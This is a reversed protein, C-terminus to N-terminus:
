GGGPSAYPGLLITSGWGPRVFLTATRVLEGTGVRNASVTAAGGPVNVFGGVGDTTTAELAITPFNNAFYFRVAQGQNAMSFEVNETLRGSCNLSFIGIYGATPDIDIGNVDALGVLASPQVLTRPVPEEFITSTNATLTSAFFALLPVTVDSTVEVYGAFGHFLPLEIIGNSDATVFSTLPASCVPDAIGCARVRLNPPAERTGLDLYSARYTLPRNRDVPVTPSPPSEEALCAWEDEGLSAAVATEPAALEDAGDAFETCGPAAGLVLVRAVHAWPGRRLGMVAINREFTVVAVRPL